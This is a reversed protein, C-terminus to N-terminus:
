IKRYFDNIVKCIKLIEGDKLFPHIPLSLIHSAASEARPLQINRYEPYCEQKHIPIPYHIQTEIGKELLYKMLNERNEVEIVFLHYSHLAHERKKPLKIHSIHRLQKLYFSAIENRRAVLTDLKNLKSYLIAAHIEDLRSNSGKMKHHYRNEQGYNRLMKAKNYIDISNTTIAGGDGYTGLNKTPYFSFAAADGFTGAKRGKYSSGHAQCADEIVKLKYKKAIKMITEMDCMQGFLHVPLIAKTKKTIRKEIEAPDIHYYDDIDAFVPTAGVNTIALVTAVATNAVTIVEDSIGIGLTMLIIELGDMGNGVGICYKTGIYEAYKKEFAEVKKGLIYWGSKLVGTIASDVPLRHYFYEQKFDNMLIM